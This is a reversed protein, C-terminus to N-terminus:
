RHDAAVMSDTDAVPAGEGRYFGVRLVRLVWGLKRRAWNLGQSARAGLDGCVTAVSSGGGDNEQM